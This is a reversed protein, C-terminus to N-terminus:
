AVLWKRGFLGFAVLSGGLLVVTSGGDPVPNSSASFTFTQPGGGTPPNQTSFSWTFATPTFDNGSVIGVGTVGLFNATQTDISSSTLDFTFGGVTWFDALGGSNFSWPTAGAFSAPTNLAISGFSGADGNVATNSWSVVETATGVSPSDLNAQGTFGINGTITIPIAGAASAICVVAVVGVSKALKSKM